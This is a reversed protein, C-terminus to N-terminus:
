TDQLINTRESLYYFSIEERYIHSLIIPLYLHDERSLTLTQQFSPHRRQIYYHIARAYMDSCPALVHARSEGNALLHFLLAGRKERGTDIVIKEYQVQPLPAFITEIYYLPSVDMLLCSSTMQQEFFIAWSQWWEGYGVASVAACGLLPVGPAKQQLFQQLAAPDEFPIYIVTREGNLLSAFRIAIFPLLRNELWQRDEKRLFRYQDILLRGHRAIIFIHPSDGVGKIVMQKVGSDMGEPFLVMCPLVEESFQLTENEFSLLMSRDYNYPASNLELPHSSNAFPCLVDLKPLLQKLFTLHEQDNLSASRRKNFHVCLAKYVELMLTTAIRENEPALLADMNDNGAYADQLLQKQLLNEQAAIFDTVVQNFFDRPLKQILYNLRNNPFDDVDLQAPDFLDIGQLVKNTLRRSQFCFRLASTFVQQRIFSSDFSRVLDAGCRYYSLYTPNNGLLEQALQDAKNNGFMTLSLWTAYVEHAMRCQQVLQHLISQYHSQQISVERSLYAYGLLLFGYGTINNLEHHLFEHVSIVQTLLDTSDAGPHIVWQLHNHYGHQQSGSYFLSAEIDTDKFQM